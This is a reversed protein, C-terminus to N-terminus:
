CWNRGSQEEASLSSRAVRDLKESSWDLVILQAPNGSDSFSDPIAFLLFGSRSSLDPRNAFSAEFYVGYRMNELLDLAAFELTLAAREKFFRMTKNLGQVDRILPKASCAQIFSVTTCHLDPHLAM